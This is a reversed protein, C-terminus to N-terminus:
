KGELIDEVSKRITECYRELKLDDVGIGFPEEVESDISEVGLLFFGILLIVPIGWLGIVQMSMWPAILINLVIGMRLMFVYSRSIPTHRIRECGGCINLLACAHPDLRWATMGDIFGDRQWNSIGTLIQGALYAPVHNPQAADNEFGPTQQLTTKGRLHNKLAEAFGTLIAALRQQHILEEPLAGRIKWALNRTENILQGWLSRAEWWRDFAARNRFSLL